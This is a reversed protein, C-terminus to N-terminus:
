VFANPDMANAPFASVVFDNFSFSPLYSPSFSLTPDKVTVNGGKYAQSGSKLEWAQEELETVQHGPYM